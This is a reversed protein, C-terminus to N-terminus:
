SSSQISQTISAYDGEWCYGYSKKLILFDKYSSAGTVQNKTEFIECESFIDSFTCNDNNVMEVIESKDSTFYIFPPKMLEFLKVQDLLGFYTDKHYGQQTNIYPPDLLYLSKGTFKKQMLEIFSLHTTEVGALYGDCNLPTVTVRNYLSRSEFDSISTAIGGSFLLYNSLTSYDLNEQKSNLYQIIKEKTKSKIKVGKQSDIVLSLLDKRIEETKSINALRNSYNDYDNYIVRANRCTYKANHSLLGSGGFVDVITWGSGDGCLKKIQENFLKIFNRKQGQFPLPAKSYKKM